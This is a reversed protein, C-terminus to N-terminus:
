SWVKKATQTKARGIRRLSSNPLALNSHQKAGSSRGFAAKKKYMGCAKDDMVLRLIAPLSSRPLDRCWM